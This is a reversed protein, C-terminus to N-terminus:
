SVQSNAISTKLSDFHMKQEATFFLSGLIGKRCVVLFIHSLLHPNTLLSKSTFCPHSKFKRSFYIHWTINDQYHSNSINHWLLLFVVKAAWKLKKQEKTKKGHHKVWLRNSYTKIAWSDEWVEGHIGYAVPLKPSPDDGWRFDLWTSM